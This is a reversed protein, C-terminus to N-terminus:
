TNGESGYRLDSNSWSSRYVNFDNVLKEEFIDTREDEKVGKTKLLFLFLLQQIRVLVEIERNREVM